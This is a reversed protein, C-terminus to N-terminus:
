RAPAPPRPGGPTRLAPAASARAAPPLPRGPGSGPRGRAPPAPRPPPPAPRWRGARALGRWRPAPGPPRRAAPPPAPPAAPGPPARRPRGGVHDGAGRGVRIGLHDLLRHRGGRPEGAGLALRSSRWAASFGRQSTRWAAALAMTSRPSGASRRRRGGRQGRALDIRQHGAGEGLGGLREGPPSGRPSDQVRAGRGHALLLEAEQPLLDVLVAPEPVPVLVAVQQLLPELRPQLRQSQGVEGGVVAVQAEVGPALPAPRPRPSREGGVLGVEVPLGVLEVGEVRSIRGASAAALPAAARRRRM